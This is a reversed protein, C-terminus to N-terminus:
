DEEAGERTLSHSHFLIRLADYSLGLDATDQVSASGSRITYPSTQGKYGRKGCRTAKHRMEEECGEGSKLVGSIRM